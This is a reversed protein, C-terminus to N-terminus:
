HHHKPHWETQLHIKGAPKGKYQIDFWENIGGDLVLAALKTSGQGISEDKGVDDDWLHFHLDDGLYHVDIDFRENIWKPKKGGNTDTGSRWEQERCQMKCYPDMKGFVETDHTLHAEHLWVSLKGEDGM